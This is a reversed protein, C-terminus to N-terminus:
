EGGDGVGTLLDILNDALKEWLGPRYEKIVRAIIGGPDYSLTYVM